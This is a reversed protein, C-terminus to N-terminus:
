RGAFLCAAPSITSYIGSALLLQGLRLGVLVLGAVLATADVEVPLDAAENIVEVSQSHFLDCYDILLLTLTRGKGSTQVAM